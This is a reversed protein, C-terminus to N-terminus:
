ILKNLLLYYWLVTRNFILLHAITSTVEFDGENNWGIWFDRYENCDVHSGLVHSITSGDRMDKVYSQSNSDAGILNLFSSVLLM